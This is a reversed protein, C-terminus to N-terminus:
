EVIMRQPLGYVGGELNSVDQYGAGLLIRQAEYGRIGLECVTVIKRGKPIQNLNARLQYLPIKLVNNAKIPRDERENPTRVDVILIESGGKLLEEFETPKIGILTNQFKNRLNNTAHISLDIPTAFPPAYGLDLNAMQDLTAGLQICTSIVDLRKVLEGHGAVQAGLLRKTEGCAVLKILGGSYLPHYHASDLGASIGTVVEFGLNKAERETLGTKGGNFEFLQFVGTGMIGPFTEKLGAINSGVVRGQKNATSALPVYAQQGSVLHRNEICDGAAYIKPNSTRLFEDVKIAGTSGIVLGAEKALGTNPRVGCALIVLEASLTENDLRVRKDTGNLVEISKLEQGTIVQVGNKKLEDEVLSAIEADLLGPLLQEEREIVIVQRRPNSIAAAVELGILGGGIILIRKAGEKIVDKIKIAENPHHLVIVGPLDVGPVRPIVPKGGTALVLNDYPLKKTKKRELDFVTVEQNEVDINEAVTRVLFDINKESSFYGQDRVIGSATTTLEAVSRVMGELLLPLGCSGYSILSGQEIVTIDAKPLLRRTRAAAKPGAAVGGIVLIRKNEGM